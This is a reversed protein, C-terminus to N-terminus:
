SDKIGYLKITGADINGSHFKFQIADIAATVNFYGGVYFVQIAGENHHSNGIATFHKVFTTSSPNFIMLEGSATQDNDNGVNVALTQFGTGEALDQATDYNLNHDGSNGAEGVFSAMISSTKTADYATSGDRGNFQFEAGDTAPHCNFYKFLYIPYTSDFVVDDSGNVFSLTSSSSATLTKIHVLAGPSSTVSAPATTLNRISRDNYKVLSM